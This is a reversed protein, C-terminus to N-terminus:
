AKCRRWWDPDVEPDTYVQPPFTTAFRIPPPRSLPRMPSKWRRRWEGLVRGDEIRLRDGPIGVVRKVLYPPHPITFSSSIAAHLM